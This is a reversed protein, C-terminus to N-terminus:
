GLEASARRVFEDATKRGGIYFLDAKFYDEVIQNERYSAREPLLVKYCRMVRGDSMVASAPMVESARCIEWIHDYDTVFEGVKVDDVKVTTGPKM